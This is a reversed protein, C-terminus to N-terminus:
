PTRRVRPPRRLSTAMDQFSRLGGNGRSMAFFQPVGRRNSLAERCATGRGFADCEKANRTEELPGPSVHVPRIALLPIGEPDRKEGLREIKALAFLM